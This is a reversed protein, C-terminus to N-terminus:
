IQGMFPHISGAGSGNDQGHRRRGASHHSHIQPQEPTRMVLSPVVVLLGFIVIWVVIWM